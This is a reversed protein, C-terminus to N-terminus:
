SFRVSIIFFRGPGTKGKKAKNNAMVVRAPESEDACASGGEFVDTDGGDASGPDAAEFDLAGEVAASFVKSALKIL